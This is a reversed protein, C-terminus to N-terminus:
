ISSNLQDAFLPDVFNFGADRLRQPLAYQSSLAVVSMDGLIMRIGFAPAPPGPLRNFHKAMTHTFEENTVPSPGTLNFPGELDSELLFRIARVHDRRSIVPMWQSGDGLQGGLNLKFLPALTDVLGGDDDIVLGTRLHVVREVEATRAQAEWVQCLGGLFDNSPDSEETLVENGRTGYYGVASGSLFAKPRREEPLSNIADAITKVSKLRSDVLTQKYDRTWPWKALPAGNLCIVADADALVLPDLEYSDPNWQVEDASEPEGRTLMTRKWGHEDLEKVLASGVFGSAGALVVHKTEM